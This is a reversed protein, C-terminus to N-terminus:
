EIIASAYQGFDRYDCDCCAARDAHFIEKANENEKEKKNNL